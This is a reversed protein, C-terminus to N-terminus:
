HDAELPVPSRSAGSYAYYPRGMDGDRMTKYLGILDAATANGAKDCEPFGFLSEADHQDNYLSEYGVIDDIGSALRTRKAMPRATPAVDSYVQCVDFNPKQKSRM